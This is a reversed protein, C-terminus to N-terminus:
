PLVADLVRTASLPGIPSTPAQGSLRSSTEGLAQSLNCLSFKGPHALSMFQQLARVTIKLASKSQGIRTPGMIEQGGIVEIKIISLAPEVSLNRQKSNRSSLPCVQKLRDVKGKTKDKKILDDLSVDAM